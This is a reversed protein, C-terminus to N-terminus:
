IRPGSLLDQEDGGGSVHHLCADGPQRRTEGHFQPQVLHHRLQRNGKLTLSLYPMEDSMPVGVKPMERRDWAGCCPGCANTLVKSNLKEFIDIIGAKRLTQRTKESGPSLLLPMKPTLGAGLAQQALSAARSLDEFSSNTCSGILGATLSPWKKEESVERFKSIPTSLDPTFPGNIRPELSSLDIEIVKDYKAGEDARLEHSAYQVAQAM